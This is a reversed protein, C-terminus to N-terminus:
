RKRTDYLYQTLNGNRFTLREVEDEVTVTQHSRKSVDKAQNIAEKRSETREVEQGYSIQYM